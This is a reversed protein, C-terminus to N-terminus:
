TRKHIQSHEHYLLTLEQVMNLAEPFSYRVSSAIPLTVDTYAVVSLDSPLVTLDLSKQDALFQRLKAQVFEVKEESVVRRDVRGLVLFLDNDIDGERRYYKHLVNYQRCDRRLIDLSMPYSGAAVPWGVMVASSDDMSFSRIYPHMGRSTFPYCVTDTFGGIRIQFPPLAQMLHFLGRLDMAATGASAQVMHANFAEEGVRWGDLGLITGHVQEITYASFASGLESHLFTQLDDVLQLLPDPKSGYFAVLTLNMEIPAQNYKM